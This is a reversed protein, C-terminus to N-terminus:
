RVAQYEPPLLNWKPGYVHVRTTARGDPTTLRHGAQCWAIISGNFSSMSVGRQKMAQAYKSSRYGITCYCVVTKGAHSKIAREYEPLSVAGPIISVKREAETRVDVLVCNKQKMLEVVQDVNLEDAGPFKRRNEDMMRELTERHQTATPSPSTEVQARYVFLVALLLVSAIMLTRFGIYRGRQSRDSKKAGRSSYWCALREPSVGLRFGAICLQNILTTRWLGLKKWRRASTNSASPTLRIRGHCRLRQCLEFDEMLPWNQFGGLRFFDSTRLFLGQDGYPLQLLRCRLNTGWEVCRLGWGPQDIQFRFAGAIAGNKLTSHIEEFFTTPLRTDAHLFLLSEGRCLAAGANMQRGRGRNATVVRCGLKRALDMTGDTSGGDAIIVECHPHQVIPGLTAELQGVENLTPIVISLLGKREQPLCDKFDQGARRCFVLNEAEDIDTLKPLLGVSVGLERCRNMTQSLVRETGWDIGLFFRVDPRNMGILYYGGDAAPGLVVDNRELQRWADSLIEPSLDPCDTGIVLVHRAGEVFATEIARHMRGGLDAGQQERWNGIRESSLAEVSTPTGGTFRVELEVASARSHLNAIHLTRRLLSAHLTAAGEPGLAPILRTKVRRAEPIRTMVILRRTSV